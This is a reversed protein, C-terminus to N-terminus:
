PLGGRPSIGNPILERVKVPAVLVALQARDHLATDAIAGKVFLGAPDRRASRGGNDRGRVPMAEYSSRRWAPSRFARRLGRRQRCRRWRHVYIGGRKLQKDDAVAHDADAKGSADHRCRRVSNGVPRAGGDALAAACRGRELFFRATGPVPRADRWRRASSQLRRRDESMHRGRLRGGANWRSNGGITTTRPCQKQRQKKDAGETDCAAVVPTRCLHHRRAPFFDMEDFMLSVVSAAGCRRAVERM